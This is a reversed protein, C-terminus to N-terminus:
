DRGQDVEAVLMIATNHSSTSMGVSSRCDSFRTNVIGAPPRGTNSTTSPPTPINHASTGHPSLSPAMRENMLSKNMGRSRCRNQRDSAPLFTSVPKRQEQTTSRTTDHDRHNTGELGPM